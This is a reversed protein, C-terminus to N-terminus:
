HFSVCESSQVKEWGDETLINGDEEGCCDHWRIVACSSQKHYSVTSLTTAGKVCRYVNKETVKLVRPSPMRCAFRRTRQSQTTSKHKVNRTIKLCYGLIKSRSHRFSIRGTGQVRSAFWFRTHRHGVQLVMKRTYLPPTKRFGRAEHPALGDFIRLSSVEEERERMGSSM